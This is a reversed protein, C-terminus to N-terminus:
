LLLKMSKIITNSDHLITITERIYKPEKRHSRTFSSGSISHIYFYHNTYRHNTSYLYKSNVKVIVIEGLREMDYSELMSLKCFLLCHQQDSDKKTREIGYLQFMEESGKLFENVYM